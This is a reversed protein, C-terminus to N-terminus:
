YQFSRGGDITITQGTIFSSSDSLLFTVLDAVERATAYRKGLPYTRKDAEITENSLFDETRDAMETAVMAPAVSNVRIGRTSLETALSMTAGTLGAKSISYALLGKIVVSTGTISSLFVISGRDRMKKANCIDVALLTPSILNIALTEDFIERKLYKVPNNHAVGASMVVGDITPLKAVLDKLNDTDALNFAIGEFREGHEDRLRALREENRGVGIVRAGAELLRTVCTKGIGSTAGTVLLIKDKCDM